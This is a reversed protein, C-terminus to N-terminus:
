GGSASKGQPTAAPGGMPATPRVVVSPYAIDIGAQGFERLISEVVQTRTWARQWVDTVYRVSLNITTSALAVFVQPDLRGRPMFHERRFRELDQRAGVLAPESVRAAIGLAIARAREWDAEYYIGVTVTDWLFNFNRSYNVVPRTMIQNNPVEVLRGTYVDGDSWEGIELLLFFFPNFGVVDGAIDGSQVRDGIVFPKLVLLVLWAVLSTLPGQLSFAIGASVLGAVLLFVTPSQVWIALIAVLVFFVVITGSVRSLTIRTKPEKIRGILGRAVAYFALGLGVIIATYLWILYPGAFALLSQISM